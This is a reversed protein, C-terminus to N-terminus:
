FDGEDIEENEFDEKPFGEKTFNEEHNEEIGELDDIEELEKSKEAFKEGKKTKAVIEVEYVEKFEGEIKEDFFKQVTGYKGEIMQKVTDTLRISRALKREKVRRGM